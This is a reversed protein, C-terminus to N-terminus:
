HILPLTNLSYTRSTVPHLHIFKDGIGWYDSMEADIYENVIGNEVKM